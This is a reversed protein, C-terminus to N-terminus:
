QNITRASPLLAHFTRRFTIRFLHNYRYYIFFNLGRTAFSMLDAVTQFLSLYNFKADDVNEIVNLIGEHNHVTSTDNTVSLALVIKYVLEPTHGLTFIICLYLIMLTVRREVDHISTSSQMSADGGRFKKMMTPEYQQNRRKELLTATVLSLNTATSMRHQELSVRTPQLLEKEAAAMQTDDFIKM